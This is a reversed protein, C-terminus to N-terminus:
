WVAVRDEPAIYMGDGERIDYCDLFEDFQALTANIRMYNMPHTNILAERRAEELTMQCRWTSAYQRFFADYDFNEKQAAIALICKLGAMDSCAETQVMKGSYEAGEFPVFGDYWAALKEVRTQYAAYDEETWWDNVMGDKDYQSGNTDFAHSIEHGIVAGISALKQEYSMEENYMEGTLLGALINISNTTPNYQGNAQATPMMAQDWDDKDVPTDIRKAKLAQRFDMIACYAELLTGGEEPGKFDLASWDGLKDPYVANVRMTDLKEIAAARTEGSLWDVNELMGRYYRIVEECIELIDERQQRTCYEQIYLNDLPVRLLEDMASLAIQDDTIMLRLAEDTEGASPGKETEEDLLGSVSSAISYRLWDRFLPVNEEVFIGSLAAIYAPEPVVVRKGGGMGVSDLLRLIPFDGALEALEERTYYNLTNQLYGPERRAKHPLLHSAMLKEACFANDFIAAAEEEGYGLRKLVFLSTERAEAYYFDGLSTREDSYEEAGGMMLAPQSLGAIYVDPNLLDADVNVIVPLTHFLNDKSFMFDYLADLSGIASVAEICPMIPAVGLKNRYDRDTILQYYKQVLEADHGTLRDNKMLAIKRDMVTLLSEATPSLKNVLPPIKAQLIWEKNVYLGFDDKLCVPTDETVFGQIDADLWRGDYIAGAEAFAPAYLSLVLVLAMLIATLKKIM